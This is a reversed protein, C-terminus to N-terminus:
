EDRMFGAIMWRGDIRTLSFRYIESQWEPPNLAEEGRSNIVDQRRSSKVAGTIGEVKDEAIASSADEWPWNWLWRVNLSHSFKSVDYDTYDGAGMLAYQLQADSALCDATFFKGLRDYDDSIGLIFESRAEMGDSMLIIINTINMALYFAAVLVASIACIALMRAAVFWMFRRLHRM